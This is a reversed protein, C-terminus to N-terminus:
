HGPDSSYSVQYVHVQTLGCLNVGQGKNMLPPTNWFFFFSADVIVYEAQLLAIDLARKLARKDM